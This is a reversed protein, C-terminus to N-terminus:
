EEPPRPLVMWHTIGEPDFRGYADARCDGSNWQDDQWYAVTQEPGTPNWVLVEVGELPMEKEVPVWEQAASLRKIERAAQRIVKAYAGLGTYSANSAALSMREILTPKKNKKSIM